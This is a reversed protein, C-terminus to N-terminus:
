DVTWLELYGNGGPVEHWMAGLLAKNKEEFYCDRLVNNSDYVKHWGTLLKGDTGVRYWHHNSKIWSSKLKTGSKYFYWTGSEQRWGSIFGNGKTGETVVATHGKTKTVLIDGRKLEMGSTYAVATEFRGTGKLASRENGTYFDGVSIGAALCCLRVLTSCDLECKKTVKAIVYGVAKAATIGTDRENQDYGFNDNAGIEEATYAIKEADASDKPRIVYWGKAHVYFDTTCIENGIQDGAVGNTINGKEDSRAHTIKEM